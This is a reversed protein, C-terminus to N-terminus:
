GELLPFDAVVPAHDSEPYKEDTAFAISEDHVLETHAEAGGLAALLARSVLVHDIMEGRGQYILSYRLSTPITRDAVVLVRGALAPNGSEEVDGRLARIEVDDAQANFDGCVAIRAEADADFLMEVLMRVEVAQGLRQMASLFSGEARASASSWTFADVKAGPIDVPRKSKLHVNVVELPGGDPLTLTTHLLPREWRVARAEDDPPDATVRSYMPPRVLDTRYQASAAIPFRSLTVLNREAYLDGAETRTVARAFAAYRTEAILADLAALTREGAAGQAHVEQLCVVDADLRRLQPRMLAIREALSPAADPEDDLNEVNFTALRM